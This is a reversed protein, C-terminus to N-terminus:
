KKEREQVARIFDTEDQLHQRLREATPASAVRELWFLNLAADVSAKETPLSTEERKWRLYEVLAAAEERTFVSLRMREYDLQTMAGYRRPNILTSKGSRRVFTSGAVEMSVQTDSFGGVLHFLPDATKLENRLDAILFAPLFFRFGAESFFSLIVYHQDLFQSSINQWDHHKRFAGAEEEPECGESSGVLYGDGPYENSGFASRIAAIVDERSPM